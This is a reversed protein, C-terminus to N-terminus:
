ANLKANEEEIWAAMEEQARIAEFIQARTLEPGFVELLNELQPASLSHMYVGDGAFFIPGFILSKTAPVFRCPPFQLLLGEDHCVGITGAVGTQFCCITGGVIGQMARLENPITVLEPLEHSRITLVQITATKPRGDYREDENWLARPKDHGAQPMIAASLLKQIDSM